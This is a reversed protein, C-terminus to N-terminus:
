NPNLNSYLTEIGSPSVWYLSIKEKLKSNFVANVPTENPCAYHIAM